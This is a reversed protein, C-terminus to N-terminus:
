RPSGAEQGDLQRLFTEFRQDQREMHDRIWVQTHERYTELSRPGALALHDREDRLQRLCSQHLLRHPHLEPFAARAMLVEELRFHEELLQIVRGLLQALEGTPRRQGVAELLADMERELGTHQDEIRALEPQWLGAQGAM